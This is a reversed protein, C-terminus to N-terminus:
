FFATPDVLTELSFGTSGDTATGPTANAGAEVSGGTGGTGGSGGGGGGGTRIPGTVSGPAGGAGAPGGLANTTGNNVIVPALFQVIGGGGGGGAACNPGASGGAGGTVVVAAGPANDIQIASALIVVGGGGGGGGGTAAGGTALITGNNIIGNRALVVLGGGGAGGDGTSAGGGGGAKVGPALTVRAEFESIGEGGLGGAQRLTQNGIAANGAPRNSIGVAPSQSTGQTTASFNSLTGGDAGNLIIITGHNTFVNTCRLTLGSQITLTVGVNVTFDTYQFNTDGQRNIRLTQDHDIVRVGASGDGFADPARLIGLMRTDCGATLIIPIAAFCALSNKSM